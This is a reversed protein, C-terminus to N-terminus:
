EEAEFHTEAPKSFMHAEVDDDDQTQGGPRGASGEGEESRAAGSHAEVDESGPQEKREEQM